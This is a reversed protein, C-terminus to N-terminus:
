LPTFPLDRRVRAGEGPMLFSLVRDLTRDYENEICICDDVFVSVFVFVTGNPDAGAWKFPIIIDFTGVPGNFTVLKSASEQFFFGGVSHNLTVRARLPGTFPSQKELTGRIRVSATRLVTAAPADTPSQTLAELKTLLANLRLANIDPSQASASGVFVFLAAAAALMIKM